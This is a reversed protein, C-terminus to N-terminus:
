KEIKNNGFECIIIIYNTNKSFHRNYLQTINITVKRYTLVQVIHRSLLNYVYRQRWTIYSAVKYATAAILM